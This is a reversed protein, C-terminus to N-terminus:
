GTEQGFQKLLRKRADWGNKECDECWWNKWYPDRDRKEINFEKCREVSERIKSKLTRVQSAMNRRDSQYDM